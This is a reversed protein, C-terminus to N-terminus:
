GADGLRRSDVYQGAWREALDWGWQVQGPKLGTRGILLILLLLGLAEGDSAAASRPVPAPPRTPAQDHWGSFIQQGYKVTLRPRRYLRSTRNTAPPHCGGAKKERSITRNV